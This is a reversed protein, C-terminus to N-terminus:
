LVVASRVYQLNSHIHTLDHIITHFLENDGHQSIQLFSSICCSRVENNAAILEVIFDTVSGKQEIESIFASRDTVNKYLSEANTKLIKVRPLGFFKEAAPNIDYINGFNDTILIPDPSKEFIIRFKHESEKIRQMNKKHHMAYRISRELSFADLKCKILHASAGKQLAEEDTTHDETGTIIIVPEAVNSKVAENLLDVGTYLGVEYYVLYLDYQSKLMANIAKEYSNCWYLIYKHSSPIEAFLNRTINFDGEDENVVLIKILNM